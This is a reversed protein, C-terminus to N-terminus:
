GQAPLHYLGQMSMGHLMVVLDPHLCPGVLLWSPRDQKLLTLYESSSPDTLWCRCVWDCTLQLPRQLFAQFTQVHKGPTM